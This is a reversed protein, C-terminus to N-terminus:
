FPIDDNARAGVVEAHHKVVATTLPPKPGKRLSDSVGVVEWRDYPKTGTTSLSAIQKLNYDSANSPGGLLRGIANLRAQSRCSWWVIEGAQEQVMLWKRSGQTTLGTYGGFGGADRTSIEYRDLAVLFENILKRAKRRYLLWGIQNRM